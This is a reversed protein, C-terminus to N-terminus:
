APARSLNTFLAYYSVVVFTGKDEEERREWACVERERERTMGHWAMHTTWQIVIVIAMNTVIVPYVV